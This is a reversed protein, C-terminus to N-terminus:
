DSLTRGTVQELYTRVVRIVQRGYAAGHLTILPYPTGGARLAPFAVPSANTTRRSHSARDGSKSGIMCCATIAEPLFQKRITVLGWGWSMRVLERTLSITIRGRKIAQVFGVILLIPILFLIGILIALVRQGGGAQQVSQLTFWMVMGLWLLAISTVMITAARLFGSPPILPWSIVVRDPDSEDVELGAPLEESSNARLPPWLTQTGSQEAKQQCAACFATESPASTQTMPCVAGCGPCVTDASSAFLVLKEVGLFENIERALFEKDAPPLGTGFSEQRDAGRITVAYVPVNNVAYSEELSAQSEPGLLLERNTTHFLKRQTVLRDKELLLYLRMFRMRVWGIALGIGVLWFVSIFLVLFLEIRRQEKWMGFFMITSFVAMFGNWLLAFFGLGGAGSVSPPIHVVLREGTREIIEVQRTTDGAPEVSHGHADAPLPNGAITEDDPHGLQDEVASLDIESLSASCVPCVRLVRDIEDPELTARCEPCTINM